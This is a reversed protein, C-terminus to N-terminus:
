SFLFKQDQGKAGEEESRMIKGAHSWTNHGIVEYMKTNSNQLEWM